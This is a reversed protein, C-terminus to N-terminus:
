MGKVMSSLQLPIQEWAPPHEASPVAGPRNWGSDSGSGELGHLGTFRSGLVLNNKFQRAPTGLCSSDM